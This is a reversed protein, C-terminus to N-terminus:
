SDKNVLVRLDYEDHMANMNITANFWVVLHGTHPLIRVVIRWRCLNPTCVNGQTVCVPSPHDNMDCDGERGLFPSTQQAQIRSKM